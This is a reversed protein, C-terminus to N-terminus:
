ARIGIVLSRISEQIWTDRDFSSLMSNRRLVGGMLAATLIEAFARCRLDERVKGNRKAEELYRELCSHFPDIVDGILERALTPRRHSAAIMARAMGECREFSDNYVTAFRMLDAELDGSLRDECTCLAEFDASTDRVVAALLKQKSEFHRFLTVENCGARKAIGRTTAAEIGREGFEARAAEILRERTQNKRSHNPNEAM